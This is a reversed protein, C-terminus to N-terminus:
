AGLVSEIKFTSIDYMIALESVTYGEKHLAKIRNQSKKTM